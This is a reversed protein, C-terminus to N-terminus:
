PIVLKEDLRVKTALEGPRVPEGEALLRYLAISIKKGDANVPPMYEFFRAALADIDAKTTEM